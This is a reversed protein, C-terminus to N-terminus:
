IGEKIVIADDGHDILLEAFSKLGNVFHMLDGTLESNWVCLLLSILNQSSLIPKNHM